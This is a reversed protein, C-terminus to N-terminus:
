DDDDDFLSKGKTASFLILLMVDFCFSSSVHPLRNQSLNQFLLSRTWLFITTMTTESFIRRFTLFVSIASLMNPVKSSSPAPKVAAAAAPSSKSTAAPKAALAAPKASGGLIPDDDDDDGFLSSGGASSKAVAAAATAPPKAAAPKAALAAPKASGGLIPDDDDDDGFLSSAAAKVVAADNLTTSSKDSLAAPANAQLRFARTFDDFDNVNLAPHSTSSDPVPSYAYSASVAAQPIILLTPTHHSEISFSHCYHQL